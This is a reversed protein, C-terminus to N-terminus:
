PKNNNADQFPRRNYTKQTHHQVQQNTIETPTTNSIKSQFELKKRSNGLKTPEM